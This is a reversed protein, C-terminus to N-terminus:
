NEEVVNGDLYRSDCCNLADKLCFICVDDDDEDFKVDFKMTGKEDDVSMRISTKEKEDEIKKVVTWVSKCEDTTPNIAVFYKDSHYDLYNLAEGYFDDCGDFTEELFVEFSSYEVYVKDINVEKEVVPTDYYIENQMSNYEKKFLKINNDLILDLNRNAYKYEGTSISPHGKYLRLYDMGWITELVEDMEKESMM